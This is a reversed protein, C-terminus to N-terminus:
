GFKYRYFESWNTRQLWPKVVTLEGMDAKEKAALLTETMFQIERSSTETLEKLDRPSLRKKSGYHAPIDNRISHGMLM